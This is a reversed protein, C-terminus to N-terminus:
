ELGSAQRARKLVEQAKTRAKSAGERLIQNVYDLNAVLEARKTRAATFYNWYQEFL